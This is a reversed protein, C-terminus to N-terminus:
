QHLKSLLANIILSIVGGALAWLIFFQLSWSDHSLLYVFWGCHFGLCYYCDFLKFFVVGVRKDQMLKRRMLNIIGWPGDKEKLAFALGFIAIIAIVTEM